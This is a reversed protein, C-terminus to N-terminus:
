AACVGVCAWQPRDNHPQFHFQGSASQHSQSQPFVLNLVLSWMNQFHLRVFKREYEDNSGGGNAFRFNGKLERFSEVALNNRYTYLLDSITVCVTVLVFGLTAMGLFFSPANQRRQFIESSAKKPETRRSSKRGPLSISRRTEKLGFAFILRKSRTRICFSSFSIKPRFTSKTSRRAM